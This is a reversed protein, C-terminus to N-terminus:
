ALEKRTHPNNWLESLQYEQASLRYERAMPCQCSVTIDGDGHTEIVTAGRVKGDPHCTVQDGTKIQTDFLDM